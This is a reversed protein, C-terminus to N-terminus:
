VQIHECPMPCRCACFCQLGLTKFDQGCWGLGFEWECCAHNEVLFRLAGCLANTVKTQGALPELYSMLSESDGVLGKLDSELQERDGELVVSCTGQRDACGFLQVKKPYVGTCGKGIEVNTNSSPLGSEARLSTSSTAFWDINMAAQSDSRLRLPLSGAEREFSGDVKKAPRGWTVTGVVLGLVFGGKWM